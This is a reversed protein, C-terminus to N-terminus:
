RRRRNKLFPFRGDRNMASLESSVQGLGMFELEIESKCDACRYKRIPDGDDLHRLVTEPHRVCCPGYEVSVDRSARDVNCRYAAGRHSATARFTKGRISSIAIQALGSVTLSASVFCVAEPWNWHSPARSFVDAWFGGLGTVVAVVLPVSVPWVGIAWKGVSVVWGFGKKIWGM